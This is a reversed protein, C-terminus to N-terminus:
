LTIQRVTRTWAKREGRKGRKAWGEIQIRLGKTLWCTAEKSARIKQERESIHPTSTVQIGLLGAYGDMVVADFVGYLDNRRKSFHNWHETKAIFHGQERHWAM